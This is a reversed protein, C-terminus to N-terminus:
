GIQQYPVGFGSLYLRPETEQMTDMQIRICEGPLLMLCGDSFFINQQNDCEVTLGSVVVNGKNKLYVHNGELKVEMPCEPQTLLDAYPIEKTSHISYGTEVVNGEEDLLNQRLFFVGEPLRTFVFSGACPVVSDPQVTCEKEFSEALTGDLGYIQVRMKGTFAKKTTNHLAMEVKMSDGHIVSDYHASLHLPRFAAKQGYWAPKVQDYADITSNDIVNPWPEGLHWLCAGACAEGLRHHSELAYRLQEWQMFRSTLAYERHDQLEGFYPKLLTFVNCFMRGHYNVLPNNEDLPWLYRKPVVTELTQVSAAGMCGFEHHMMMDLQNYFTYQETPGLVTWPGHVDHMAGGVYQLDANQTIPGSGSTHMWMRKPDMKQVVKEMADLTPYKPSLPVWHYGAVDYTLGEMGEADEILINGEADMYKGRYCLENGGCWLILSPHNRKQLVASHTVEEMMRIYEADRPPHNNGTASSQFLEQMVLIGERDCLDYFEERELLGGGWVRLYNAGARKVYEIRKRYIEPQVRGYLQRMPTFNYGQLYVRRGNIYPQYPIADEGAGATRKWEIHYLGVNVNREDWGDELEASVQYLPHEGMGNPYWLAADKVTFEACYGEETFTGTMQERQGDPYQLTFLVRLNQESVAKGTPTSQSTRDSQSTRGPQSTRIQVTARVVATRNRYDTDATVYLDEMAAAQEYKLYVDKWIGLPVLRTCWDWGYAFRAKLHRVKSAYGWQCEADRAAKVLVLLTNEQGPKVVDTVDFRFSMWAIEHNGLWKGNLFVQCSDDVGDFCLQIRECEKEEPYFKRVYLWDRQYTWEANRANFGYNIDTILGADLADSQVDGPVMAPIFSGGYLEGESMRKILGTCADVEGPLFHSVLWEKGSLLQKM